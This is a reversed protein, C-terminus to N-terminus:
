GCVSVEVGPARRPNGLSLRWPRTVADRPIVIRDESRGALFGVAVTMGPPAFRRVEIVLPAASLDRIVTAGSLLALEPAAPATGAALRRCGTGLGASSIRQPAIRYAAALVSDASLRQAAPARAIEAPTYFSPVGHARTEAFYRGATVGSLFSDRAVPQLLWLGSPARAGALQLAGIDAKAYGAQTRMFRYGASLVFLNSVVIGAAGVAILASVARPLTLGRLLEAGILILLVGDTLQYRSAFTERGVIYGAGTLVWFALAPGAIVLLSSRPRGGRVLWAVVALGLILALIHGRSLAAAPGGHNLGTISTLGISISDLVYHPLHVVNRLSLGSPQKHGYGAWWLAFLGAPVAAIWLQAPRRRLAIAIAAGVVFPIGLNFLLTSCVLLVCAAVNRRRTDLELALLAALGLTLSGLHSISAFFLTIEWAPGLFLVVAAAAVGAIAGLRERVLVFVLAGLCAMTIGLVLRFPLQTGLGFVAVLLKYLVALLVVINGNHPALLTDIGGRSELGPRQLLFWWDDNFFSLKLGLIVVVAASATCLVLVLPWAARGTRREGTARLAVTM